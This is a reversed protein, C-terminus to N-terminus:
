SKLYSKIFPQYIEYESQLSIFFDCMTIYPAPLLYCACCQGLELCIWGSHMCFCKRPILENVRVPTIIGTTTLMQVSSGGLYDQITKTKNATTKTTQAHQLDVHCTNKYEYIWYAQTKKLSHDGIGSLLM